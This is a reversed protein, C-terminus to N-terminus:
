QTGTCSQEGMNGFVMAMVTVATGWSEPIGNIDRYHVARDNMWSSFVALTTNFVQERDLM